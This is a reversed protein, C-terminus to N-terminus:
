TALIRSPPTSPAFAGIYLKSDVRTTLHFYRLGGFPYPSPKLDKQQRVLFSAAFLRVM